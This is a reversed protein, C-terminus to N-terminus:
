YTFQIKEIIYASATHWRYCYVFIIFIITSYIIAWGLVTLFGNQFTRQKRRWRSRKRWTRRWMGRWRQLHTEGPRREHPWSWISKIVEGSQGCVGRVEKRARRRHLLLSDRRQRFSVSRRTSSAGESRVGHEAAEASWVDEASFIGERDYAYNCMLTSDRSAKCSKKIAVRARIIVVVFVVVVTEIVVAAVIIIIIAIIGRARFVIDLSM